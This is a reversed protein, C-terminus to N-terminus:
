SESWSIARPSTPLHPTAISESLSMSTRKSPISRPRTVVEMVILEVAGIASAMYRATASFCPVGHLLDAPRELVVDQLSYMACFSYMKGGRGDIRRIVSWNAKQM